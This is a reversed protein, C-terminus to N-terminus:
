RGSFSRSHFRLQAASYIHQIGVPCAARSKCGDMVCPDGDPKALHARCSKYDFGKASFASVPCASLCPKDTCTACPAPTQAMAPVVVVKDFLLAARLAHWLGFEPDIMLGLPSAHLPWARQAWRQFPMPPTDYPYVARARVQWALPAVVRAVWADLPNPEDRRAGEFAHWMAGGTNGIMIVTATPRGACAYPVADASTPAFGGRVVLGHPEVSQAITSYLDNVTSTRRNRRTNNLTSCARRSCLILSMFQM